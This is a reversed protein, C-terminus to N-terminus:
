RRVWKNFRKIENGMPDVQIYTQEVMKIPPLTVGRVRFSTDYLETDARNIFYFSPFISTREMTVSDGKFTRPDAEWYLVLGWIYKVPPASAVPRMSGFMKKVIYITNTLLRFQKHAMSFDQTAFYINNGEKAGQTLFEVQDPTLAESGRQPFWKTIEHIFVDMQNGYLLDGFDRFFLYQHGSEEVADIFKQSMPTDFCMMRPVHPLGMKKRKKAWRRNRNLVQIAQVALLQSKGASELGSYGLKM